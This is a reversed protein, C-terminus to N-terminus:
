MAHIPNSLQQDHDGKDHCSQLHQQTYTEYIQTRTVIIDPQRRTETNNEFMWLTSRAPAQVCQASCRRLLFLLQCSLRQTPDRQCAIGFRRWCRVRPVEQLMSPSIHAFLFACTSLGHGERSCVECTNVRTAGFNETEEEGRPSLLSFCTEFSLKVRWPSQAVVERMSQKVKHTRQGVDAFLVWYLVDNFKIEAQMLPTSFKVKSRETEVERARMPSVGSKPKTTPYSPKAEVGIWHVFSVVMASTKPHQFAVLSM